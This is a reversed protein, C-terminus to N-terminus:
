KKIELMKSGDWKYYKKIDKLVGSKQNGKKDLLPEGKKNILGGFEYESYTFGDASLEVNSYSQYGEGGDDLFTSTTFIKELKNNAEIFYHKELTCGCCGNTNELTLLLDVNKLGKPNLQKYYNSGQDKIMFTDIFEKKDLDYKYFSVEGSERNGERNFDPLIFYRISKNRFSDFRYTAIDKTMVYGKGNDLQVEFWDCGAKENYKVPTDFKINGIVGSLTDPKSYVVTSKNFTVPQIVNRYCVYTEYVPDPKFNGTTDREQKTSSDVSVSQLPVLTDKSGSSNGEPKTGSGSCSTLLLIGIAIYRMM